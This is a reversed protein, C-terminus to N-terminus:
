NTPMPTNAATARYVDAEASYYRRTRGVYVMGLRQAVRRSPANDPHMVSLIEAIGAQFGRQLAGASAETAYGHGWYDPHLHWGVEYDDSLPMPQADASLPAMKLMVTGVPKRTARLTVACIGLLPNISTASRWRMLLDAAEEMSALPTQTGIFRQVEQRSYMDLVFSRDEATYPRVILRETRFIAQPSAMPVDSM